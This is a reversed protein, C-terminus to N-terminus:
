KTTYKRGGFRVLGVVLAGVGVIGLAYLGYTHVTAAIQDVQDGFWYGILFFVSTWVLGTGYSYLAYRRFPMRAVGVLYPVLHRVVPLFYSLCLSWEGWSNLLDQARVFYRGIKKKRALKELVPAGVRRGVVFGISLGSVVGLYTMVFASVTHLLGTSAVLGGGMVILEDPIPMGVIGLWLAFFLAASGYQHILNLLWQLDM